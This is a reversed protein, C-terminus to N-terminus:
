RCRYLVPIRTGDEGDYTGGGVSGPVLQPVEFGRTIDQEPEPRLLQGERYRLLRLGLVGPLRERGACCNGQGHSCVPHIRALCAHDDAVQGAKDGAGQASSARFERGVEDKGTAFGGPFYEVCQADGGEFRKVGNLVSGDDAQGVVARQHAGFGATETVPVCQGFKM